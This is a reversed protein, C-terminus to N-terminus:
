IGKRSFEEIKHDKIQHRKVPEYKYAINSYHRGYLVEVRKM